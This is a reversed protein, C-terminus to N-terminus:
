AVRYRELAAMDLEVGLGPEDPVLACGDTIRIPNLILDDERFVNGVFDSPLTCAQAAAAAHIHAMDLIGLEMRSGHWVPCGAAECIRACAVFDTPSGSSLNYCDAADRKIAALIDGAGILHLAIPIGLERRLAVYWDLNDQPVPSEFVIGERGALQQAVRLTQQPDYFRENPDLVISADPLNDQIAKV